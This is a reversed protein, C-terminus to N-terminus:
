TLASLKLLASAYRKEYRSSFLGAEDLTYLKEALLSVQTLLNFHFLIFLAPAIWYFAVLPLAVGIIPLEVPGVRLLQEHTTGGITIALYLGFSLFAIYHSGVQSAAADAAVQLKDIRENLADNLAASTGPKANGQHRIV